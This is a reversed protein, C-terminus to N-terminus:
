IIYKEINYIIVNWIIFYTIFLRFYYTNWEEDTYNYSKLTKAIIITTMCAIPTIFLFRKRLSFNFKKAIILSIVNWLGLYIPAAITYNFYSYNKESGLSNVKMFFPLTVFWSSGILFHILYKM